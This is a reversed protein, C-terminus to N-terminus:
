LQATLDIQMDSYFPLRSVVADLLHVVKGNLDLLIFLLYIDLCILASIGVNVWM